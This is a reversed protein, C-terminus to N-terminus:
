ILIDGSKDEEIQDEMLLTGPQETLLENEDNRVAKVAGLQAFAGMRRPMNQDPKQKKLTPEPELTEGHMEVGRYTGSGADKLMAIKQTIVKM